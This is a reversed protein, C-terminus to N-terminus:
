ITETVARNLTELSKVILYGLFAEDRNLIGLRNNTMHIYSGLIACLRQQGEPINIKPNHKWGSPCIIQKRAEAQKLAKNIKGMGRLWNNLWIQEFASGNALAQWFQDHYPILHDQQHAFNEAFAALTAQQLQGVKQTSLEPTYDYAKSFWSAYVQAFLRQTEVLNMEMAWALALHMQIAAGLARNYHWGPSAAILTLVTESSLQFQQEAINIGVPGGYREIEPEYPAYHITNNPVMPQLDPEKRQSPRKDFFRGFFADLEPQVVQTLTQETGRFRLRIHPGQEWYRIFFFRDVLGATFMNKVFPQVAEVLFNEWPRDYYLYAALWFNDNRM